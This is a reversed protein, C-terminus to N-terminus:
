EEDLYAFEDSMAMEEEEPTLQSLFARASEFEEELSGDLVTFKKNKDLKM